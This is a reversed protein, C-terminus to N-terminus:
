ARNCLVMVRMVGDEASSVETAHGAPLERLTDKLEDPLTSARKFRNRKVAGDLEKAMNQADRCSRIAQAKAQFEELSVDTTKVSVQMLHYRPVSSTRENQASLAAPAIAATILASATVLRTLM